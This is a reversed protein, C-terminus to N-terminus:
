GLVKVESIVARFGGGPATPLNTCWLLLQKTEISPDLEFTITDEFPKSGLLTGGAPDESTTERLELVGGKAPSSVQVKRVKVPTDGLELMLGYGRGFQLTQSRMTATRWSTEPRGDNALPALEPNEWGESRTSVAHLGALPLQTPEPDPLVKLEGRPALNLTEHRQAPKPHPWLWALTAIVLVVLVGIIVIKITLRAEAQQVKSPGAGNVAAQRTNVLSEDIVVETHRRLNKLSRRSPPQTPPPTLSPSSASTERPDMDASLEPSTPRSYAPSQASEPTEPAPADSALTDPAQADGSKLVDSPEVGDFIQRFVPNNGEPTDERTAGAM